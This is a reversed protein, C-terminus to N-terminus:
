AICLVFAASPNCFFFFFFYVEQNVSMDKEEEERGTGVVRGMCCGSGITLKRVPDAGLKGAAWPVGWNRVHCIDDCRLNAHGM